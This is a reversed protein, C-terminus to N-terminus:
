CAWVSTERVNRSLSQNIVGYSHHIFAVSDRAHCGCCISFDKYQHCCQFCFWFSKIILRIHKFWLQLPLNLCFTISYLLTIYNKSKVSTVEPSFNVVDFEVDISFKLPPLSFFFLLCSDRFHKWFQICISSPVINFLSHRHAWDLYCMEKPLPLKSVSYTEYM